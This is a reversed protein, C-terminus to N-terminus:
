TTEDEQLKEYLSEVQQLRLILPELNYAFLQHETANELHFLLRILATITADFANEAEVSSQLLSDIASSSVTPPSASTTMHSNSPTSSINLEQMQRELLMELLADVDDQFGAADVLEAPTSKKIKIDYLVIFTRNWDMLCFKVFDLLYRLFAETEGSLLFDMLISHDYHISHLFSAFLSFPNMIRLINAFPPSKEKLVDLLPSGHHNAMLITQLWYLGQVLHDDQESLLHLFPVLPNVHFLGRTALTRTLLVVVSSIAESVRETSSVLTGGIILINLVVNRQLVLRQDTGTFPDANDNELNEEEQRYSRKVLANTSSEVKVHQSNMNPFIIPIIRIICSLLEDFFTGSVQYETRLLEILKRAVSISRLQEADETAVLFDKLCCRPLLIPPAGCIKSSKMSRKSLVLIPETLREFVAFQNSMVVQAVFAQYRDSLHGGSGM